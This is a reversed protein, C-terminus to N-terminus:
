FAMEERLVPRSWNRRQNAKAPYSRSEEVAHIASAFTAHHAQNGAPYFVEFEGSLEVITAIVKNDVARSITVMGERRTACVVATNRLAKTVQSIFRM